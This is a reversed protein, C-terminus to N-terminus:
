ARAADGRGDFGRGLPVGTRERGEGRVQAMGPGKRPRRVGSDTIDWGFPPHRSPPDDRHSSCSQRVDAAGGLLYVMATDIETTRNSRIRDTTKMRLPPSLAECAITQTRSPKRSALVLTAGVMECPIEAVASSTLPTLGSDRICMSLELVGLADPVLIAASYYASVLYSSVAQENIGMFRVNLSPQYEDPIGTQHLGIVGQNEEGTRMAIISSTGTESVPIKNCPLLPVGRWSRVATGM